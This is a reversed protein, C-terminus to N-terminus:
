FANIKSLTLLFNGNCQTDNKSVYLSVYVYLVNTFKLNSMRWPADPMTLQQIIVSEFLNKIQKGIFLSTIM